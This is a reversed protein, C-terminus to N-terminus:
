DKYFRCHVPAKIRKGGHVYHYFILNGRDKASFPFAQSAVTYASGDKGRVAARFSTDGRVHAASVIRTKGPAVAFAKRSNMQIMIPLPSVNIVRVSGRPYAAMTDNLVLSLPKDWKKDKPSKYLVVLSKGSAPLGRKWWISNMLDDHRGGLDETAAEGELIKCLRKEGLRVPISRTMRGLHLKLPYHEKGTSFFMKAPPVAGKPYEAEKRGKRDYVIKM